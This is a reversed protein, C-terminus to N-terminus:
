IWEGRGDKVEVGEHEGISSLLMKFVLAQLEHTPPEFFGIDTRYCIGTPFLASQVTLKDSLHASAWLAKAPITKRSTDATLKLATEAEEIYERRAAEIQAIDAAVMDAMFRFEDQTLEGKLKSEILSARESRRVEVWMWETETSSETAFEVKVHDGPNYM